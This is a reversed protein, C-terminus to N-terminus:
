EWGGRQMPREDAQELAIREFLTAQQQLTRDQFQQLLTEQEGLFALFAENLQRESGDITGGTELFRFFWAMPSSRAINRGARLFDVLDENENVESRVMTELGERSVRDRLENLEAMVKDLYSRNLETTSLAQRYQQQERHAWVRAVRAEVVGPLAVPFSEVRKWTQVARHLEGTRARAIGLLYLGQPVMVSDTKIAAFSAKATTPNGGRLALLGEVLRARNGMESAAPDSAPGALSRTVRLATRARSFSEEMFHSMALNFYGMSAWVPDDIRNLQNGAESYHGYQRATEALLYFLEDREEDRSVGALISEAEAPTGADLAAKAADLSEASAMLPLASLIVLTLQRVAKM